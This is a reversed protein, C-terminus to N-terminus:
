QGQGVGPRAVYIPVARAGCQASLQEAEFACSVSTMLNWVAYRVRQRLEDGVAYYCMQLVRHGTGPWSTSLPRVAWHGHQGLLLEVFVHGVPSDIEVFGTAQWYLRNLPEVGTSAESEDAKV